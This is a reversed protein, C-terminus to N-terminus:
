LILCLQWIIVALGVTLCYYSFYRFKNGTFLKIMFRISLYGSIAAIIMGFLTPGILPAEAAGTLIDIIDFLASGLIVPISMIFSFKVAFARDFGALFAGTVTSGSRSIGPLIAFGQFLGPIISDKLKANELTITGSKLRSSIIMEIATIILAFGVFILPLTEIADGLLFGVLAAPVSAIIVLIVFKQNTNKNLDVQRKFIDRVLSFFGTILDLIDKYYVAFVAILTALHLLIDYTLGLDAFSEGLIEKFIALHGSSSVPLFETLGQVLGLIGYKLYNM